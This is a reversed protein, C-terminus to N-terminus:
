LRRTRKPQSTIISNTLDELPVSNATTLSYDNTESTTLHVCKKNNISLNRKQRKRPQIQKQSSMNSLSPSPPSPPSPIQIHNNNNKNTDFSANLISDPNDNTSQTETSQDIALSNISNTLYKTEGYLVSHLLKVIRSKRDFTLGFIIYMAILLAFADDVYNTSLISIFDVYIHIVNNIYVLTPYPSSPEDNFFLHQVSERFEKCLIKIVRIPPSETIFLPVSLSKNLLEPIQRRVTTPLDTKTLLRVEQFILLSNSYGPFDKIIDKTSHDKTSQRRFHLTEKWLKLQTLANTQSMNRLQNVKADIDHPNDDNNPLILM